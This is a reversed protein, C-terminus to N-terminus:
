NLMLKHLVCLKTYVAEGVKKVPFMPPCLCFHLHSQPGLHICQYSIAHINWYQNKSAKELPKSDEERSTCESILHCMEAEGALCPLKVELSPLYRHTPNINAHSRCAFYGTSMPELSMRDPILHM